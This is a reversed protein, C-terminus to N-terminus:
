WLKYYAMSLHIENLLVCQMGRYVVGHGSFVYTVLTKSERNQKLYDKITNMVKLSQEETPNILEFQMTVGYPAIGDKMWELDDSVSELDQMAQAIEGNDHQKWVKDFNSAAFM